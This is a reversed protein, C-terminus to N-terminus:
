IIIQYKIDQLAL